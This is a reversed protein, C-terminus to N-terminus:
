KNSVLSGSFWSIGKAAIGLDRHWGIGNTEALGSTRNQETRNCGPAESWHGCTGGVRYGFTEHNSWHRQPRSGGVCSRRPFAHHQLFLPHHHPTSHFGVDWHCHNAWTQHTYRPMHLYYQALSRMAGTSNTPKTPSMTNSNKFSFNPVLILGCTRELVVLFLSAAGTCECVGSNADQRMWIQGSNADQRMWTQCSLVM